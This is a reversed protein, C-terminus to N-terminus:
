PTRAVIPRSNSGLRETIWYFGGTTNVRMTGPMGFRPNDSGSIRWEGVQDPDLGAEGAAHRIVRKGEDISAAWVQPTGWSAGAHIVCVPGAQWTFAKWYDVLEGLGLGSQSRYRFYKRIRSNGNPSEEDSVFSITRFDGQLQPREPPCIPQKFDKLPQLLEAVADVRDIIAPIAFAPPIEVKAEITEPEGQANKECVSNLIYDTPDYPVAFIQNFLEALGVAIAGGVIDQVFDLWPPTGKGDWDDWDPDWPGTPGGPGGPGDGGDYFLVPSFNCGQIIGGANARTEAAPEIKYVPAASGSSDRVLGKLDIVYTCTTEPDIYTVPPLDQVPDTPVFAEECVAGPEPTFEFDSWITRNYSGTKISGNQFQYTFKWSTGTDEVSIIETYNFIGQRASSGDNFTQVASANGFGSSFKKCGEFPQDPEFGPKEPDWTCNTRYALQAVAGAGM